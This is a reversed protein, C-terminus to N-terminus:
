HPAHRRGAGLTGRSWTWAIHTSALRPWEPTRNRDRWEPTTDYRCARAAVAQMTLSRFPTQTNRTTHQANCTTCTEAHRHTTRNGGNRIRSNYAHLWTLLMVKAQMPLALSLSNIHETHIHTHIHTCTHALQTRVSYSLAHVNVSLLGALSSREGEERTGEGRERRGGGGKEGGPAGGWLLEDLPM